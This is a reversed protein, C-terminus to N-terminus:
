VMKWGRHPQSISTMPRFIPKITQAPIQASIHIKWAPAPLQSCRAMSRKKIPAESAAAVGAFALVMPSHNGFDSRGTAAPQAPTPKEMPAISAGGIM